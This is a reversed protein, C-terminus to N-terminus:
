QTLDATLSGTEPNICIKWGKRNANIGLERKFEHISACWELMQNGPHMVLFKTVITPKVRYTLEPWRSVYKILEMPKDSMCVAKLNVWDKSFLEVDKNDLIARIIDLPMM